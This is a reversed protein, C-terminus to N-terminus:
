VSICHWPRANAPPWEGCSRLNRSDAAVTTSTALLSGARLRLEFDGIPCTPALEAVSWARPFARHGPRAYRIFPM